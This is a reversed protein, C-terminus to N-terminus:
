LNQVIFKDRLTLLPKSEVFLKFAYIQFNAFSHPTIEVLLEGKFVIEKALLPPVNKLDVLDIEVELGLNFIRRLECNLEYEKKYDLTKKASYALDIDSKKHILGTVRSGFFVIFNLGYKRAIKRIKPKVKVLNNLM